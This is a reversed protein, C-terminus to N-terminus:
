PNRNFFWASDGHTLPPNHCFLSGVWIPPTEKTERKQVVGVFLPSGQVLCIEPIELPARNPAASSVFLPVGLNGHHLKM